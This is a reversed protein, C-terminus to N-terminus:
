LDYIIHVCKFLIRSVSFIVIFLLINNNNPRM